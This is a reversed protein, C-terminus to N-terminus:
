PAHHGEGQLAIFAGLGILGILAPGPDFDPFSAAVQEAAVGLSHGSALADFLQADAGPIITLRVEAGPRTILVAEAGRATPPVFPSRQHASWISGIAWPSQILRTAPARGAQLDVLAEPPLTALDAPTMIAAEAANYSQSWAVELRALDPLFPLGAAPPFGVVFDPFSDGYNLLVPSRPKNEGVYLRAMATFFDDGVVMACIPFRAALAGVLSVHVNNRYVAFRKTDATGRPSVLGSPVPQTPDILAATFDTQGTM